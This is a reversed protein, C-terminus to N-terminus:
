QGLAPAIARCDSEAIRYTPPWPQGIHVQDPDPAILIVSGPWYTGGKGEIWAPQTYGFQDWNITVWAGTPQVEQVSLVTVETTTGGDLRAEEFQQWMRQTNADWIRAHRVKVVWRLVLAALLAVLLGTISVLWVQAPWNALTAPVLYLTCLGVFISWLMLPMSTVSPRIMPNM